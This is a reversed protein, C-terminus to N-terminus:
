RLELYTERFDHKFNGWIKYALNNRKWTRIDDKFIRQRHLIVLALNITQSQTLETKAERSYEVLDNISKFILNISQDPDYTLSKVTTTKNDLQQPTIRGYNDYLFDLITLVLPRIQRTVPNCLAALYKTDVAKITQQIITRKLLLTELYLKKTLPHTDEASAIQAATGAPNPVLVGPNPPRTFPDSPPIHHYEAPTLIMGLYGHNGGGLTTPVSSANAKLENKLLHLTEYTPEGRIKTLVPHEFYSYKNNVSSTSTYCIRDHIFIIWIFWNIYM